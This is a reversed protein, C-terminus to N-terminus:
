KPLTINEFKSLFLKEWPFNNQGFFSGWKATELFIPSKLELMEIISKPSLDLGIKKDINNIEVWYGSWTKCKATVMVPYAHGIAYAISVLVDKYKKEYTNSFSLMNKAIYRAIYAGSRDV